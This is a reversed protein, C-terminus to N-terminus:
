SLLSNWSNIVLRPKPVVQIGPSSPVAKMLLAFSSNPLIMFSAPRALYASLRPCAVHLNGVKRDPEKKNREPEANKAIANRQWWHRALAIAGSQKRDEQAECERTEASM